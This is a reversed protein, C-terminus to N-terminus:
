DNFVLTKPKNERFSPRYNRATAKIQDRHFIKGGTYVVVDAAFKGSTDVASHRVVAHIRFFSPVGTVAHVRVDSPVVVDTTLPLVLFLLYSGLLLLFALLCCLAM